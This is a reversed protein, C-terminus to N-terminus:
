ARAAAPKKAALQTLSTLLRKVEDATNYSMLGTRLVGGQETLGLADIANPAYFDGSWVQIGDGALHEAAQDPSAFDMTFSTREQLRSRDTIGRVQVGGIRELGDLLQRVLGTEYRTISKLGARIEGRRGNLPAHDAPDGFERGIWALHNIAATVGAM